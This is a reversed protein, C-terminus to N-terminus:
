KKEAEKEAEKKGGWVEKEKKKITFRGVLNTKRKKIKKITTNSYLLSIGNKRNERSIDVSGTIKNILPGSKFNRWIDLVV